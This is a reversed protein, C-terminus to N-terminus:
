KIKKKSNFTSNSIKRKQYTKFAQQLRKNTKPPNELAELFLDRDRDSLTLTDKTKLIDESKEFAAQRIFASLTLGSFTAAELFREREKQSTRLEIRDQKM